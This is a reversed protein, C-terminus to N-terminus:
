CSAPMTSKNVLQSWRILMDDSRCTTIGGSNRTKLYAQSFLCQVEADVDYMEPSAISNRLLYITQHGMPRGVVGLKPLDEQTELEIRGLGGCGFTILAVFCISLTRFVLASKQKTTKM